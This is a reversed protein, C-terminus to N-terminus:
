GDSAEQTAQTEGPALHCADPLHENLPLDFATIPTFPIRTERPNRVSGPLIERANFYNM